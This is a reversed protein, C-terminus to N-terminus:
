ECTFERRKETHTNLKWNRPDLTSAQWIRQPKIHVAVLCVTLCCQHYKLRYHSVASYVLAATFGSYFEPWSLACCGVEQHHTESAHVFMHKEELLRMLPKCTAAGTVYTPRQLLVM